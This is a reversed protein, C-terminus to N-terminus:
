TESGGGFQAVATVMAALRAALEPTSLRADLDVAAETGGLRASRTQRGAIWTQTQHSGRLRRRANQVTQPATLRVILVRRGAMAAAAYFRHHALRDGEAVVLEPVAHVIWECAVPLISFSLADTGGFAQRDRGLEVGIVNGDADRHEIHPLEADIALSSMSGLERWLARVTTTKGVGPAGIVSLLVASM